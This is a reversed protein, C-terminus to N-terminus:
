VCDRSGKGECGLQGWIGVAEGFDVSVGNERGSGRGATGGSLAGVAGFTEGSCVIGYGLAGEGPDGWVGCGRRGGM